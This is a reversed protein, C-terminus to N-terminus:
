HYVSERKKPHLRAGTLAAFGGVLGGVLVTVLILLAKPITFIDAVRSALGNASAADTYLALLLWLLGISVFGALFNMRSRLFYGGLAAAVAIGWWGIFRELAYAVLAIVLIQLILRM